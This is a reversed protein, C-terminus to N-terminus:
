GFFKGAEEIKGRTPPASQALPILFLLLLLQLLVILIISNFPILERAIASM